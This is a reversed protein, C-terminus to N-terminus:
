AATEGLARLCAAALDRPEPREPAFHIAEQYCEWARVPEGMVAFCNGALYPPRWPEISEGLQYAPDPSAACEAASAFATLAELYRETAQYCLGLSLWLPGCRPHLKLGDEGFVIGQGPRGTQHLALALWAYAMGCHNIAAKGQAKFHNIATM